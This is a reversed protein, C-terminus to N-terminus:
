KKPVTVGRLASLRPDGEDNACSCAGNNLNAGCKPCLGECDERCLPQIPLALMFQEWGVEGLNLMPAHREYIIAGGQEDMKRSNEPPIDEYESFETDIKITADEACRYCPATVVGRLNGKVLIGEDVPQVFVKSHLPEVIKYDMKFEQIPELWIDQDDLSYEKGDPPLDNISILHKKM